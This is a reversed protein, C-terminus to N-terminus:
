REIREGSRGDLRITRPELTRRREIVVAYSWTKGIMAKRPFLGSGQPGEIAPHGLVLAYGRAALGLAQTGIGCACDLVTRAGPVFEQIVGDLQEGQRTVSAEWDPHILHFHPALADYFDAPDV